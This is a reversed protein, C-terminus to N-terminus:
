SDRLKMLLKGLNNEGKSRCVGWFTDNWTNNEILIHPQTAKLKAYLEPNAFKVCLIKWMISIKINDWNPRIIINRGTRKAQGATMYTIEKRIQHDLTKAAQYAHEASPYVIGDPMLLQVLYFNSLFRFEKERFNDIM